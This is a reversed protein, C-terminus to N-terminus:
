RPLLIAEVRRNEQRGEPTLNSAIPSLYGNGQAEVRDPPADHAKIMRDRVAAARRKSLAINASLSGVSDTHGVLVVRFEPNETLFGSIQSLSAYPGAGLKGAGSLFQLDDLVVHGASQLRKAYTNEPDPAVREAPLPRTPGAGPATSPRPGPRAGTTTSSTVEIMQVFAASHSASVLLGVVNGAGRQAALFRYNGIDVYMDPAAVVETAFRFDFGGCSTDRCEFVQRFGAAWLQQRLPDLIQLTTMSGGEIQWTRREVRGEVKRTPLRGDAFAGVPLEYSDLASDSASIQRTGTPMTLDIAVAMAPALVLAPFLCAALFPKM